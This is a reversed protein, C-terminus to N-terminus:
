LSFFGFFLTFIRLLTLISIQVFFNFVPLLISIVLLCYNLFYPLCDFLTKHYSASNQEWVFKLFNTKSIPATFTPRPPCSLTARGGRGRCESNLPAAPLSASWGPQTIGPLCVPFFLYYSYTSLNHLIFCLWKSITVYNLYFCSSFYLLFYFLAHPLWVLLQYVEAKSVCVASSPVAGVQTQPLSESLLASCPDFHRAVAM